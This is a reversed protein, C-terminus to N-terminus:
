ALKNFFIIRSVVVVVSFWKKRGICGGDGLLSIHANKLMDDRDSGDSLRQLSPSYCGLVAKKAFFFM